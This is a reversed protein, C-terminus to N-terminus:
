DIKVMRLRRTESSINLDFGKRNLQARFDNLRDHQKTFFLFNARVEKMNPILYCQSINGNNTKCKSM